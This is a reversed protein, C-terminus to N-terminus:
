GGKWSLSSRYELKGFPGECVYGAKLFCDVNEWQGSGGATLQVCGNGDVPLEPFDSRWHTYFYPSGDVWKFETM